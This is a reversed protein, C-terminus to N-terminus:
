NKILHPLPVPLQLGYLASTVLTLGLTKVKQEEGLYSYLMWADTTDTSEHKYAVNDSLIPESWEIEVENETANWAYFSSIPIMRINRGEKKDILAYLLSSVTAPILSFLFGCNGDPKCEALMCGAVSYPDPTFPPLFTSNVAILAVPAGGQLRIVDALCRIGGDESEVRLSEIKIPSPGKGRTIACNGKYQEVGTADSGIVCTKVKQKRNKKFLKRVQRAKKDLELKLAMNKENYDSQLKELIQTAYPRQNEISDKKDSAVNNIQDRYIIQPNDATVIDQIKTHVINTINTPHEPPTSPFPTIPVDAILVEDIDDFFNYAQALVKGNSFIGAGNNYKNGSNAGILNIGHLRSYGQQLMGLHFVPENSSWYAPHIINKIELKEYLHENWPTTYDFDACVFMGIKVKDPCGKDLNKKGDDKDQINVWAIGKEAPSVVDYDNIPFETFLHHKHYIVLIMGNNNFAVQTNFNFIGDNPCSYQKEYEKETGGDKLFHNKHQECTQYGMINVFLSTDLAFAWFSFIELPRVEQSGIGNTSFIQQVEEMTKGKNNDKQYPITGILSDDCQDGYLRIRERQYDDSPEEQGLDRLGDFWLQGESLLILDPEQQSAELLKVGMNKLNEKLHIQARIKDHDTINGGKPYVPEQKWRLDDDTFNAKITRAQYSAARYTCETEGHTLYFISLIIYRSFM